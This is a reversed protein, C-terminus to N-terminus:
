LKIQDPNININFKKKALYELVKTGNPLPLVFTGKPQAKDILIMRMNSRAILYPLNYYPTSRWYDRKNVSDRYM